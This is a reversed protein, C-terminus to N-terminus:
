GRARLRNTQCEYHHEFRDLHLPKPQSTEYYIVSIRDLIDPHIAAVLQEEIGETDIKLVDIRGERELIQDIAEDIAHCPVTIVEGYDDSIRGYRGTPETGFSVEGNTLGVAVAQVEFRGDYAALNGKLREVNKPDPEFLYARSTTNRTLFYLGSIGINSGVDVTVGLDRGARYDQRCFVENVTSIDHSSYLTPAVLGVPTRVSCRYPYEGHATLYRRLNEAFNPYRLVMGAFARYHGRQFPARLAAVKSRNGM